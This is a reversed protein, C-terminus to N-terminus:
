IHILSLLFVSVGTVDSSSIFLSIYDFAYFSLLLNGLVFLILAYTTNM